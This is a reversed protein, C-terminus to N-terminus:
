YICIFAAVPEKVAKPLTHQMLMRANEASKIPINKDLM